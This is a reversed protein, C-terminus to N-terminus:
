NEMSYRTNFLTIVANLEAIVTNVCTRLENNQTKLLHVEEELVAMRDELKEEITVIEECVDSTDRMTTELANYLGNLKQLEINIQYFIM